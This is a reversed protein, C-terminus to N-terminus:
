LRGKINLEKINNTELDRHITIIITDNLEKNELKIKIIRTTLTVYESLKTYKYDEAKKLINEYIVDLYRYKILIM